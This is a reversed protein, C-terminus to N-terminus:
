LQGVARVLEIAHLEAHRAPPLHLEGDVTRLAGVLDGEVRDDVVRRRPLSLRSTGSRCAMAPWPAPQWRPSRPSRLRPASARSTRRAPCTTPGPSRPSRM